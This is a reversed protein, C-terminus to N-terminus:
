PVWIDNMSPIPMPKIEGIKKWGLKGDAQKVVEVFTMTVLAANIDQLYHFDDWCITNFKLSKLGQRLKEPDTSGNSQKLAEMLLQFEIYGVNNHSNPAEGYKAKFADYYKKTNEKELPLYLLVGARMGIAADGMAPINFVSVPTEEPAVPNPWLKKLGYESYQKVWRIADEGVFWAILGDINNKQGNEKLSLMYPGFDMTGFPAWQQYVVQGGLKEFRLKFNNMMIRGGVFDPGTTAVKRFGLQNYVFQATAQSYAETTASMSFSWYNKALVSQLCTLHEIHPIKPTNNIWATVAAYHDTKIPGFLIHVKRGEVLRKANEVNAQVNPPSDERYVEIKRGMFTWGIQDLGFEMGRKQLDGLMAEPGSVSDIRGVRIPEAAPAAKAYGGFLPLLFLVSLLLVLFIRKKM